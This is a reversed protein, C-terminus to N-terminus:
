DTVVSVAKVQVPTIPLMQSGNLIITQGKQGKLFYHFLQTNSNRRPDTTMVYVSRLLPYDGTAIRYQYPRFGVADPLTDRTVKMVHVDLNTFDNLVEGGPEKLWNTGVVGIVMSDSKVYEIVAENSGQAYLRGKLQNGACLSDRMYRLTSSGSHDFVLSIDGKKSSHRLQEWRTIEGSVIRRLEDVTILTDPNEKNMILAFADTGILHWMVTLKNASVQQREYDNLLRTAVCSRISDAVLMKIASDESCYIPNLEVDVNRPQLGFTKLEEDMIPRFTEDIAVYVDNSFRWGKQETKSSCAWMLPIILLMAITTKMNRNNKWAFTFLLFSLHLSLKHELTFPHKGKYIFM